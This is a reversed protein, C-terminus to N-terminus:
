FRRTAIPKRRGLLASHRAGSTVRVPVQGGVGDRCGAVPLYEHCDLSKWFVRLLTWINLWGVFQSGPHGLDAKPPVSAEGLWLSTGGRRVTKIDSPVLRFLWGLIILLLQM